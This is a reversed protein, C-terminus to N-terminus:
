PAPIYFLALGTNKPIFMQDTLEFDFQSLSVSFCFAFFFLLHM